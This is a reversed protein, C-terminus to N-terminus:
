AGSSNEGSITKNEKLHKKFVSDILSNIKTSDNCQILHNCILKLENLQKEVLMIDNKEFINNHPKWKLIYSNNKCKKLLFDCIEIINGLINDKHLKNIDFLEIMSQVIAISPIKRENDKTNLYIWNKVLKITERIFYGEAKLVREFDEKILHAGTEITKYENGSYVILLFKDNDKIVIPFDIHYNKSEDKFIFTTQIVKNKDQVIVNQKVNEKYEKLIEKIMLRINNGVKENSENTFILMLDIDLDDDNYNVETKLAYSGIYQAQFNIKGLKNNIYNKLAIVKNKVRDVEDGKLSIDNAIKILLKNDIM